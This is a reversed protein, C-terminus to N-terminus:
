QQNMELFWSVAAYFSGPSEQHFWHGGGELEALYCGPLQERMKVAIDHTLFESQRGRILMTPIKIDRWSDWMEPIDGVQISNPDIRCERGKYAPKFGEVTDKSGLVVDLAIFKSIKSGITALYGIAYLGGMAHGVVTIDDACIVNILNGLDRVYNMFGYDDPYADQSLGHGRGDLAIVRYQGSLYEAAIAWSSACDTRGHLLVIVDSNGSGWETWSLKLNGSHFYNEKYDNM